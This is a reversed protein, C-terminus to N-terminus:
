RYINASEAPSYGLSSSEVEESDKSKQLNKGHPKFVLGANEMIEKIANTDLIHFIAKFGAELMFDKAKEDIDATLAYILPKRGYAPYQAAGGIAGSSKQKQTSKSKSKSRESPQRNLGGLNISQKLSANSNSKSIVQQNQESLFSSSYPPQNFSMSLSNHMM